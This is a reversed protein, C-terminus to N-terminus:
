VRECNIDEANILLDTFGSVMEGIQKDLHDFAQMGLRGDRCMEKLDKLKCRIEAFQYYPSSEYQAYLENACIIFTIGDCDSPGCSGLLNETALWKRAEICGEKSMAFKM